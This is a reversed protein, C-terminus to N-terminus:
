KFRKLNIIIIPPAKYIEFKKIAQVHEKCKNCYWMNQEDLIESKKFEDMCDSLTIKTNKKSDSSQGKQECKNSASLHRDLPKGFDAHWVINLVFDRNGKPGNTGYYSTNDEVGVKQLM